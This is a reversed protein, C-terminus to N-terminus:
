FLIGGTLVMQSGSHADLRIEAFPTIKSNAMKFQAGGVLEFGVSNDSASFGGVSVSTHALGLGAGAYPTINPMTQVHFNYDVAWNIEWFTLGNGPFFWDFSAQASLPVTPFLKGLGYTLRAGVGFDTDSGWSAQPGFHLKQEVVSSSSAPRSRARQATGVAPVAALAAVALVLVSKRM